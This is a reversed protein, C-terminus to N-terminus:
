SRPEKLKPVVLQPTKVKPISPSAMKPAPLRFPPINVSIKIPEYRTESPSFPLSLLMMYVMWRLSIYEDDSTADLDQSNSAGAIAAPAAVVPHFSAILFLTLTASMLFIRKMISLIDNTTTNQL